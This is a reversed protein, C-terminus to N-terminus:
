SRGVERRKMALYENLQTEHLQAPYKELAAHFERLRREIREAASVHATDLYADIALFYRMTNREAVGQMGGVYTPRGQGDKGTVTFGVKDRGATSLYANTAWRAALGAEYGYSLHVFTKQPGAAMAEFRMRYNSTGLPGNAAHLEVDLRDPGAARPRWEFRLARARDPADTYKRAVAVELTDGNASCRKINTQLLLVGCWQGPKQLAETVVGIPHDVLAYVDGHPAADSDNSRLVLPRGFASHALQPRLDELRQPLQAAHGEPWAPSAPVLTALLCAAPILHRSHM